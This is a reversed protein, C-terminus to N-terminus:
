VKPKSSLFASDGFIYISVLPYPGRNRWRYLPLIQSPVDCIEEARWLATQQGIAVERM